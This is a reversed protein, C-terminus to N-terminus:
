KKLKRKIKVKARKVISYVSNVPIRFLRGIEAYSKGYLLNLRLINKERPSLKKIIAVVNKLSDRFIVNELPGPNRTDPLEGSEFLSFAGPPPQSKKNFYNVAKNAALIALWYILKEPNGLTKLLNNEWISLFVDQRIDDIDNPQYRYGYRRLRQEIAYSVLKKFRRVFEFWAPAEKEICCALLKKNSIKAYDM